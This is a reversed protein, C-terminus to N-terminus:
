TKTFKGFSWTKNKANNWNYDREDKYQVIFAKVPLGDLVAPGVIDFQITTASLSLVKAQQVPKPPHAQKLEVFHESTGLTNTAICKYRSYFKFNNTQVILFSQGQRNIIKFPHENKIPINNFRWEYTANPIAEAICSLNGPKQDWTWVPPQNKSSAFTPAFEVTVHGNKLARDAKNEAMCEYLGDDSRNLKTFTLIGYTEDGHIQQELIIRNNSSQPGIVFYDQTGLKKFTVMPAPRGQVKCILTTSKNEPATVNAFEYIKPKMLVNIRVTQMAEDATNKAVCEYDSHDDHEVKNIVLLGTNKNVTFRDTKSLDQMTSKKIWTYTPPPKGSATCQISAIDGEIIEIGKMPEIVPPIQVEVRIYRTDLEGTPIVAARCVYIGDDSEQVNKM